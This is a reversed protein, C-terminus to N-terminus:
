GQTAATRKARIAEAVADLGQKATHTEQEPDDAPKAKIVSQALAANPAMALLLEEATPDTIISNVWKAQIEPAAPIRGEKAAVAVVGKAREEEAAKAKTALEDLQAQMAAKDIKLQELEAELAAIEEPTKMTPDTPNEETPSQEAGDKAFFPAITTFAARNVLGGMNVPTGTVRGDKAHFAPSFRRFTKGNVAQEGASSWEVEARVGGLLPDDGGWFIRKVWASAERDDHNFDLFPADGEGADAKAQYGARIAELDNATQEDIVLEMPVPKKQPDASAPTVVQKGPPFMQVTDAAAALAVSRALFLISGPAKLAACGAVKAAARM